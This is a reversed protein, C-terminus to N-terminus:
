RAPTRSRRRATRCQGLHPARRATRVEEQVGSGEPLRPEGAGARCEPSLSQRLVRRLRAGDAPVRRPRRSPEQRVPRHRLRAAEPRRRDDPRRAAPRPRRGSARGQHPRHSDAVPRHHVGRPRRHLKAARVLRHLQLRGERHSRHQAHPVGHHGNNNASVNFWGIDDGWIILINPKKQDPMDREKGIGDARDMLQRAAAPAVPM